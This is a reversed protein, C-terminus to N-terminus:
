PLRPVSGPTMKTRPTLSLPPTKAVNVFTPRTWPSSHHTESNGNSMAPKVCLTGTISSHLLHVPSRRWHFKDTATTRVGACARKSGVTISVQMTIIPEVRNGYRSEIMSIMRTQLVAICPEPLGRRKRWGANGRARDQAGGFAPVPRTKGARLLRPAAESGVVNSPPRNQNAIYLGRDGTSRAGSCLVSGRMRM